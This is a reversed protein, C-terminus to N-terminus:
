VMNSLDNVVFKYHDFMIPHLSCGLQHYNETVEEYKKIPKIATNWLTNPKDAHNMLAQLMIINPSFTVHNDGSDLPFLDLILERVEPVLDDLEDISIKHFLVDWQWIKTGEPIDRIAFVGVGHIASTKIRCWVTQNFHEATRM